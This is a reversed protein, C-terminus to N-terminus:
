LLMVWIARIREFIVSENELAEEICGAVSFYVSGCYMQDDDTASVIVFFILYFDVKCSFVVSKALRQGHFYYATVLTNSTSRSCM